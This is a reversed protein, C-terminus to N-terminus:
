NCLLWRVAGAIVAVEALPRAKWAAVNGRLVELAHALKTDNEHQSKEGKRAKIKDFDTSGGGVALQGVVTPAQVAVNFAM